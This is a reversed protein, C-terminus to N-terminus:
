SAVAAPSLETKRAGYRALLLRHADEPMQIQNLAQAVDSLEALTTASDILNECYTPDFPPTDFPDPESRGASREHSAANGDDDEPAIGTLAMLAYRRAYTLASGESQPDAKVPRLPYVSGLWEGSEHILRTVLVTIGDDHRDTQQVIAIKNKRLAEGVADIVGVLSLFKSGFHPNTADKVVPGYEGQAKLLAPMIKVISESALETM